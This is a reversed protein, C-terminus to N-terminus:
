VEVEFDPGRALGIEPAGGVAVPLEVRREGLRAAPRAKPAEPSVEAM